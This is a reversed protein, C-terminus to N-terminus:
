KALMKKKLEELKAIKADVEEPTDCEEDSYEDMEEDDMMEGDPMMHMDEKKDLLEEAKDLGKKLGEKDPAAVSVKQMGAMHEDMGKKFDGGMMESAMKRLEKLVSMKAEKKMSDSDDEKYMKKMLKDIM